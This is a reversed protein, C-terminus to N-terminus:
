HMLQNIVSEHLRQDNLKINVHNQHTKSTNKINDHVHEDISQYFDKLFAENKTLYYIM